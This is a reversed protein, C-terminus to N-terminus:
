YLASLTKQDIENKYLELFTDYEISLLQHSNFYKMKFIRM